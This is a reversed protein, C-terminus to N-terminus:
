GVTVAVLRHRRERRRPAGPTAPRVVVTRLEVRAGMALVRAGRGYVVTIEAADPRVSQTHVRLLTAPPAGRDTGSSLLTRFQDTIHPIAVTTLHGVPRRRNMVELVLKIAGIAFQRMEVDIGDAVVPM